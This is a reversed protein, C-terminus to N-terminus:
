SAGIDMIRKEFDDKDIKARNKTKARYNYVTQPSYRLFSIIQASDNIGLRILAYIRLEANLENEKKLKIQQDDYLLKNIDEVFTPFLDLFSADFKSFFDKLEADIAKPSNVFKILDDIQNAQLKRRAFEKSASLKDIYSSALDMFLGLHKEKNINDLHLKNNTKTLNHRVLKIIKIQRYIYFLMGIMTISLLSIILITIKLNKTEQAKKYQYAKLIIPLKQSIQVVRLRNNYFLADEMSLQIYEYAKNLSKNDKRNKYLFIALDQMAKNEKLPCMQDSISALILFKEQEDTMGKRSYIKTLKYTVIAYLRTDVDLTKYLSLLIKEANDLDNNAFFTTGLYSQYLKDEKPLILLISDRYTDSYKNYLLTYKDDNIYEANAQYTWELVSYYDYLLSEDINARDISGLKNLSERFLGGTSLLRSTKIETKQQYKPIKIKEAIVKNKEIYAMASDYRYPLYEDYIQDNIGYEEILSLSPNLLQRLSDIRSEKISMYKQRTNIADDLKILLKSNNDAYICSFLLLTCFLIIPKIM